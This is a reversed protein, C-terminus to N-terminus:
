WKALVLTKIVKAKLCQEGECDVKSDEYINTITIMLQLVLGKIM